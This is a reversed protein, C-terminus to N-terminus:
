RNAPAFADHQKQMPPSAMWLLGVGTVAGLLGGGMILGLLAISPGPISSALWCMGWGMSSALIWWGARAFHPKLLRMQLLGSLLGGIIGVIVRGLIASAPLDPPEFGVEDLIVGAVFPVGLGIACALGWWGSVTIQKRLVSWQAYGVAAGICLGVVLNTEKPYIINVIHAVIISGLLGGVWASSTAVIWKRLFTREFKDSEPNM